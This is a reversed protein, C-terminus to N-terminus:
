NTPIFLPNFSGDCVVIRCTKPKFVASDLKAKLEFFLKIEDFTLSKSDKNKSAIIQLDITQKDFKLIRLYQTKDGNLDEKIWFVLTKQALEQHSKDLYYVVVNKDEVKDGYGKSCSFFTVIVFLFLIKKM